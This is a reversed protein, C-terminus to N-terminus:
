GFIILNSWFFCGIRKLNKLQQEHLLETNKSAAFLPSFKGNDLSRQDQHEGCDTLEFRCKVGVHFCGM